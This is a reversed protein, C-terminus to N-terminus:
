IGVWPHELVKVLPVPINYLMLTQGSDYVLERSKCTRDLPIKLAIMKVLEDVISKNHNLSSNKGHSANANM